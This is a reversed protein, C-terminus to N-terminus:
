FHPQRTSVDSVKAEDCIWRMIGDVWRKGSGSM